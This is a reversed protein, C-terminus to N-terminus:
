EVGNAWGAEDRDGAGSGFRIECSVFLRVDTVRCEEGFAAEKRKRFRERNVKEGGRYV